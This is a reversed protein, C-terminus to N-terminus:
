WGSVMRSTVAMVMVVHVEHRVEDPQHWASRFFRLFLIGVFLLVYIRYTNSLTRLRLFDVNESGSIANNM